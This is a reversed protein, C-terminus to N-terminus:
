DVRSKGVEDKWGLIKCAEAEDKESGSHARRQIAEDNNYGWREQILEAM